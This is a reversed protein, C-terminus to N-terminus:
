ALASQWSPTPSLLQCIKPKIPLHRSQPFTIDLVM